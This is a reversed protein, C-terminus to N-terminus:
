IKFDVVFYNIHKGVFGCPTIEISVFRGFLNQPKNEKGITSGRLYSGSFIGSEVFNLDIKAGCMFRSHAPVACNQNKPIFLFLSAVPCISGRGFTQSVTLINIL